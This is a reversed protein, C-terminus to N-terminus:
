QSQRASPCWCAGWRQVAQCCGLRVGLGVDKWLPPEEGGCSWLM